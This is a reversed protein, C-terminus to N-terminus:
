PHNRRNQLRESQQNTPTAHRHNPVDRDSAPPRYGRPTRKATQRPPDRASVDPLRAPSRVWGTADTRCRLCEAGRRRCM